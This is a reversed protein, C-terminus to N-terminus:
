NKDFVSSPTSTQQLSNNVLNKDFMMCLKPYPIRHIGDVFDEINKTALVRIYNEEQFHKNLHVSNLKKNSVTIECLLSLDRDFLDIEEGHEDVKYSILNWSESQCARTGKIYSELMMGLIRPHALVDDTLGAKSLIDEALRTYMLPSIPCINYDLFIYVLDNNTNVQELASFLDSVGVHKSKKYPLDVYAMGAKVMFHLATAKEAPTLKSFTDSSQSLYTDSFDLIKRDQKKPVERAGIDPRVFTEYKVNLQLKYALLDCISLIHEEDVRIYDRVLTTNRNALEVDSYFTRFYEENFTIKLGEPIGKLRLYDIFDKETPNYDDKYSDVKGSFYLYETFSLLSLRRLTSRGGGLPGGYLSMLHTPSSGTIIVKYGLEVSQHEIHMIETPYNKLFSIEDLLLLKKPSEMFEILKDWADIETFNIYTSDPEYQQLQKLATTKGIRRIGVLVLIRDYDEESVFKKLESVILREKLM